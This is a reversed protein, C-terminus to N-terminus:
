FSHRLGLEFGTSASGATPAPNRDVALASRGRNTLRVANGYLATRKSLTHLYGLAIQRADDGKLDAGTAATGSPNSVIYSARVLGHGIPVQLGVYRNAVTANAFRSRTAFGSVKAVGFDYSAGLDWTAFTDDGAVPAVSTRGYSVSVDVPGAGFGVRGAALKKGALGEGPAVALRGYFGGLAPTFWAIQNDARVVTDRGSGLSADFKSVSSLGIDSWVDYDEYGLYTVTYDRGLRLEGFPGTLSVTSRRNWFRSADQSAGTDPTLGTELQFAAGFGDGLDEFGRVGLRSTNNGNASLSEVHGAGNKVHRVGLDLLGYLTLSSQASATGALAALAALLTIRKM